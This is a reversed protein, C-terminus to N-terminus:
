KTALRESLFVSTKGSDLAIDLPVLKNEFLVNTSSRFEYGEAEKSDTTYIKLELREGYKRKMEEAIGIAKKCSM